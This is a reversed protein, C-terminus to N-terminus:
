GNAAQLPLPRVGPAPKGVPVAQMKEAPYQSLLAWAEDPTGSLWTDQDEARLIAPMRRQDEPLLVRKKGGKSNHIRRLLENAPMTVITCSTIIEGTAQNASEDWLGAMAFAEPQDTVTIYHPITKQYDPPQAQWEYFGAALVLCRQGRAWPGRYTPKSKMDEMRANFTSYGGDIGNAFFPILGWRMDLLERGGAGTRVARLIPVRQTPSCNFNPVGDFPAPLARPHPNFIREIAAEEPTVYRGCM